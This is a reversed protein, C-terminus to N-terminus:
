IKGMLLLAVLLAYVATAEILGAGLLLIKLINNAAEPQRATAEVAKTTSRGIALSAGIGTGLVAFCAAIAIWAGQNM